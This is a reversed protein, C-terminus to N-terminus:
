KSKPAKPAVPAKPADEVSVKKGSQYAKIIAILEPSIDIQEVAKMNKQAALMNTLAQQTTEVPSVWEIIKAEEVRTANGNRSQYAQINFRRDAREALRTMNAGNQLGWKMGSKCFSFLSRCGAQTAAPLEEYEIFNFGMYPVLKADPLVKQANYLINLYKDDQYLKNVEDQTIILFLQNQPDNLDVHKRKYQSRILRLVSTDFSTISGDGNLTQTPDWVIKETGKEGSVVDAKFQAVAQEDYQRQFAMKVDLMDSSMPDIIAQIDEPKNYLKGWEFLTPFIWRRDREITMDPTEGTKDTRDRKQVTTPKVGQVTTSTGSFDKVPFKSAILSEKQQSYMNVISSFENFYWDQLGYAAANAASVNYDTNPPM